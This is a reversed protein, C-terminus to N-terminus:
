NKSLSYRRAIKGKSTVYLDYVKGDQEITGLATNTPKLQEEREIQEVIAPELVSAVNDFDDFQKLGYDDALKDAYWDEWEQLSEQYIQDFIEKIQVEVKEVFYRGSFEPYPEGTSGQFANKNGYNILYWWPATGAPVLNIRTRVTKEWKGRYSHTIDINRTKSGRGYGELVKFVKGGERDVSYINRQWYISRSEPRATMKFGLVERTSQVAAAYTEIDGLPSFDVKVTVNGPSNPIISLVEQWHLRIAEQSPELFLPDNYEVTDFIAEMFANTLILEARDTIYNIAELHAAKEVAKQAEIRTLDDSLERLRQSATSIANEVDELLKTEAINIDTFGLTGDVM